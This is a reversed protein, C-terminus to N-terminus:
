VGPARHVERQALWALLKGALAGIGAWFCGVVLTIAIELPWLNHSTPDRSTEVIVRAMVAAPIAGGLVLTILWTPGVKLWRLAAAGATILVVGLGMIADPLQAQRYTLAWYPVGVVVTCILFAIALVGQRMTPRM